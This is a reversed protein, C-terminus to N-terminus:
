CEGEVALIWDETAIKETGLHAFVFSLPVQSTSLRFTSLNSSSRRIGTAFGRTDDAVHCIEGFGDLNSHNM